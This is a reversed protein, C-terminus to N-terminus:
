EFLFALARRMTENFEVPFQHGIEPYEDVKVAAGQQELLGQIKPFFEKLHDQGGLILCGRVGSGQEPELGESLTQTDPLYPAVAIFRRAPLSGTLCLRIALGAGQSFGGLTLRHTDVPYDHRLDQFHTEVERMALEADDWKFSHSDARQSSNPAAVLWGQEALGSWYSAQTKASANRGHLAILLPYPEPSGAQPPFVLLGPKANAEAEACKAESIGVLREFEPMGKLSDLDPDERLTEAPWWVGNQLAEELLQLAPGTKGQMALTCLRWNYTISAYEPFEASHQQLYVFAEDFRGEQYRRFAETQFAIYDGQSM